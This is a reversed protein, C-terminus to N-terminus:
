QIMVERIEAHEEPGNPGNHIIRIEGRYRGQPWPGGTRKKGALRYAGALRKTIDYTHDVVLKDAPGFVRFRVRDGADVGLLDAWLVLSQAVRPITDVRVKGARVDAAKPPKVSFGANYIKGQRYKLLELVEIKWLPAEGYGCKGKRTLGVFPDIIKDKHRVTIHIHPRTTRGSLGVLGIPQRARVRDGKKVAVSGKRMHCYQTSWGGAHRVMIGNGCDKGKLGKVGGIQRYDVDDMGDRLGIVKGAAAALVPVGQRMVSLDRVVFDTGKHGDYSLWGCQYDGKGPSPDLDVYNMLWCNKGPKCNIPIDM